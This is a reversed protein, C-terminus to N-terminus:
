SRDKRVVGNLEELEVVWWTEGNLFEEAHTIADEAYWFTGMIHLGNVPDGYMIVYQEERTM